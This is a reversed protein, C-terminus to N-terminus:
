DSCLPCAQWGLLPVGLGLVAQPVPRERDLEAGAALDFIVLRGSAGVYWRGGRANGTTRGVEVWAGLWGLNEDSAGVRGSVLLRRVEPAGAAYRLAFGVSPGYDWRYPGFTVDGEAFLGFSIPHRERVFRAALDVGVTLQGTEARAPSVWALAVLAALRRVLCSSASLPYFGAHEDGGVADFPGGVRGAGGEDEV